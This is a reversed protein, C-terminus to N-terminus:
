GEKAFSPGPSTKGLKFVQYDCVDKITQLVIDLENIVMNNSVRASTMTQRLSRAFVLKQKKNYTALM